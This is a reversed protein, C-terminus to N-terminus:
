EIGDTNPETIGDIPRKARKNSEKEQGYNYSGILAKKEKKLKVLSLSSLQCSAFIPLFIGQVGEIYSQLSFVYQEKEFSLM